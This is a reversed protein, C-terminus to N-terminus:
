DIGEVGFELFVLEKIYIHLHITTLKDMKSKAM